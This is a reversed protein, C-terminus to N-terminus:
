VRRARLGDAAVAICSTVAAVNLAMGIAVAAGGLVGSQVGCMNRVYWLQPELSRNYAWMAYQMAPTGVAIHAILTASTGILLLIWRLRFHRISGLAAFLIMPYALLSFTFPTVKDTFPWGSHDVRLVHDIHHIVALGLALLLTARSFRSLGTRVDIAQAGAGIM